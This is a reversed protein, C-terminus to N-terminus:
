LALHSADLPSQISKLNVAVQEPIWVVLWKKITSVRITFVRIIVDMRNGFPLCVHKNMKRWPLIFLQSADVIVKATM